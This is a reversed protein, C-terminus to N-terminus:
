YEESSSDDIEVADDVEPLQIRANGLLAEKADEPVIWIGFMKSKQGPDVPTSWLEYGDPEHCNISMDPSETFDEGNIIQPDDLMKWMDSTSNVEFQGTIQLYTKGEPIETGSGYSDVPGQCQDSFKISDITFKSGCETTGDCNLDISDGEKVKNPTEQQSTSQASMDTSQEPASVQNTEDNKCAALALPLLVAVFLSKKMYVRQSFVKYYSSEM